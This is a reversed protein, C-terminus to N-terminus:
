KEGRSIVEAGGSEAQGAATEHLPMWHTFYRTDWTLRAAAAPLNKNENAISM